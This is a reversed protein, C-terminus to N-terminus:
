LLIFVVPVRQWGRVENEGAAMQCDSAAGDRDNLLANGGGDEEGASLWARREPLDGSYRRARSIRM